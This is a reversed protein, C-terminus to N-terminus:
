RRIMSRTTNIAQLYPDLEPQARLTSVAVGTEPNFISVLSTQTRHKRFFETLGLQKARASSQQAASPNSVDFRVWHVANGEKLRLTKVVPKITQCASCWSAYIEVFVPKGQLSPALPSAAHAPRTAISVVPIDSLPTLAAALPVVAGAFLTVFLVPQKLTM